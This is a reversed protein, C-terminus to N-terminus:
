RYMAAVAAVAAVGLLAGLAGVAVAPGMSAEPPSPCTISPPPTAMPPCYCPSPPPCSLQVPCRVEPCPACPGFPSRWVNNGQGAIVHGADRDWDILQHGPFSPASPTPESSVATVEAVPTAKKGQRPRRRSSQGSHGSRPGPQEAPAVPLVAADASEVPTVRETFGAEAVSPTSAPLGADDSAAEAELLDVAVQRIHAETAQDEPVLKPTPDM